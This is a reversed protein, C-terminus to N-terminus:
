KDNQNALYYTDIVLAVRSGEPNFDISKVDMLRLNNEIKKMIEKLRYYDVGKLELSLVVRSVDAPLEDDDDKSEDRKKRPVQAADKVEVEASMSYIEINSSTAEGYIIREIMTFLEEKVIEEDPLLSNVKTIDIQSVEEYEKILKNLKALQIQKASLEDSVMVLDVTEKIIIKEYMPKLYMISVTAIIIIVLFVSVFKFYKNFLTPMKSTKNNKEEM